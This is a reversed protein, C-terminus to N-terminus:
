PKHSGEDTPEEFIICLGLPTGSPADTSAKKVSKVVPGKENTRWVKNDLWYQVAEVVTSQCIELRNRGKFM